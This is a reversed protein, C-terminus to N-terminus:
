SKEKHGGPRLYSVESAKDGYIRYAKGFGLVLRGESPILRFLDFDILNRLYGMTEGHRKALGDMGKTWEPTDRIVRDAQCDLTLRARAFLNEATAEDEILSVSARGTKRLHAYHKAMASVYVHFDGSEDIWVPAYSSLPRGEKSVTAMMCSRVRVKLSEMQEAAWRLEEQEETNM